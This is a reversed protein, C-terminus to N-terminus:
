LDNFVSVNFTNGCKIEKSLVYNNSHDKINNQVLGQGQVDLASAKCFMRSCLKIHVSINMYCVSIDTLQYIKSIGICIGM